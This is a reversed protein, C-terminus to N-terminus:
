KSLFLQFKYYALTNRKISKHHALKTLVFFDIQKIIKIYDMSKAERQAQM